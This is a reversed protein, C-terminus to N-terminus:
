GKDQLSRIVTLQEGCSELAAQGGVVCVASKEAMRRLLGCLAKLQARDTSLIEERLRCIDEHDRGTFYRAAASVGKRHPTLLPDTDAVAGIIYPTLSEDGDCFSELFEAAKDYFSLSRAPSPDRYSYMGVVGNPRSVFGSGYAGGQVRIANWLYHLSLLGAAVRMTGNYEAELEGLHTGKVAYAVGSPIRIGERDIPLPRYEAPPVARGSVAVTGALARCFTEDIEGTVSITLRERTFVRARIDKLQACLADAKEAFAAETRRVWLCGELGDFYEQIAGEATCSAAVRGLAYRHGAATLSEEDALKGQRLLQLLLEKDDLDSSGLIEGILSIAEAKKSELLSVSVMLYPTASNAQGQRTFSVPSFSLDGLHTRIANQLSLRTHRATAASGLMDCLLAACSLEEGTLGAASFYLEAYVIGDTNVEHMLVECGGLQQKQLPLREPEGDVDELSLRPLTALQEPTDPTEQARRLAQEEAIYANKQESTWDAMDAALRAAEKQRKEEGLTASPTMCISACHLNHLLTEDLVQEFYDTELKKRVSTFVEDCCLNQAPDGDYLWSEMTTMAYIVGRPYSGYDKARARFELRNLSATIQERDLGSEKLATLTDRLVRRAEEVRDAAVNRMELLLLQQKTGDDMQFYIDEALGTSLIAKKLPAENSGCLVDTLIQVAISREREEFTGYIYGWALQVRNDEADPAVEYPLTAETYPVPPQLPIDSNLELRDYDKLYSDLLALVDDLVVAGDLFIRANSPHYYTQHSRIFQEYTLEPIHVPDGGSSYGYCHNPFLLRTLEQYMVTEVDSYAGKMENFVVGNYAPEGEELAYHWGEQRFIEPKHYISPHLVADMYVDTLNLFDRDNRSSVPYMTKDPFTMANLFTQLSGKLLEVFPEKVPFKDSGCLVSHELIHFVGTDDSPITKFTIAFTKNDDERQLWVLRAGNKEYTMEWLTAHLEPLPRSATVVFGHLTDHVQM